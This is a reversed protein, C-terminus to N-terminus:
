TTSRAKLEQFSDIKPAQELKRQARRYLFFWCLLFFLGYGIGEVGFVLSALGMFAIARSANNDNFYGSEKLYRERAAEQKRKQAEYLENLKAKNNQCENKKQEWQEQEILRQKLQEDSKAKWESYTPLTELFQRNFIVEEALVLGRRGTLASAMERIIGIAESLETDFFERKPHVRKGARSLNHHVLHELEAPNNVKLTYELVNIVATNTDHLELLRRQPDNSQGIKLFNQNPNSMVYVYGFSECEDPNILVHRLVNNSIETSLAQEAKLSNGFEKSDVKEEGNLSLFRMPIHMEVVRNELEPLELLIAGFLAIKWSGSAGASTFLMGGKQEVFHLCIKDPSVIQIQVGDSLRNTIFLTDFTLSSSVLGRALRELADKAHDLILRYRDWFGVLPRPYKTLPANEDRWPSLDDWIEHSAANGNMDCVYRFEAIEDEDLYSNHSLFEFREEFHLKVQNKSVRFSRSILPYGESRAYHFTVSWKGGMGWDHELEVTKRGEIDLEYFWFFSDGEYEWFANVEEKEIVAALDGYEFCRELDKQYMSLISATASELEDDTPRSADIQDMFDETM